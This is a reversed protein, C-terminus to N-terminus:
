SKTPDAMPTVAHIRHMTIGGAELANYTRAWYEVEWMVWEQLERSIPEKTLTDAFRRVDNLVMSMYIKTEDKAVRVDFGVKNLGDRI